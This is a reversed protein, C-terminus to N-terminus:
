LTLEKGGAMSVQDEPYSRWVESVRGIKTRVVCLHGLLVVGSAVFRTQPNDGHSPDLTRGHEIWKKGCLLNKCLDRVSQANLTMGVAGHAFKNRIDSIIQL